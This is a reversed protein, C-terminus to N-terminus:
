PTYWESRSFDPPNVQLTARVCGWGSRSFDEIVADVLWWSGDELRLMDGGRALPRVIGAVKDALGPATFLYLKRSVNEMGVRDAHALVTPGESQVQANIAMGPAYVSKVGGDEETVQGTSRYLTAPTDPHLASIAGRTLAHLNLGPIM